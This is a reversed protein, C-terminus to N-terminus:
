EKGEAPVIIAVGKEIEKEGGVEMNKHQLFLTAILGLGAYMIFSRYVLQLSVAYGEIVLPLQDATVLTMDIGAPGSIHALVEPGLLLLFNSKLANQYITGCLATGLVGGITRWFTLLGTVVAIDKREVSAQGAVLLTQLAFGLGSGTVFLYGIQMGKNSFQSLTSILTCGVLHLYPIPWNELHARWHHHLMLFSRPSLFLADLRKEILQRVPSSFLLQACVGNHYKSLPLMEIGSATASEQQTEQYFVQLVVPFNAQSTLAPSSAALTSPSWTGSPLSLPPVFQSRASNWAYAQGGWSLALLLPVIAALISLIGRQITIVCLKTLINHLWYDIRALKNWASSTKKSPKLFIIIIILTIVGLPLQM